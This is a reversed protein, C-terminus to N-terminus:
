PAPVPRPRSRGSPYDTDAARSPPRSFAAFSESRGAAPRLAPETARRKASVTTRGHAMKRVAAPVQVGLPQVAGLKGPLEPGRQVNVGLSCHGQAKTGEIFGQTAARM